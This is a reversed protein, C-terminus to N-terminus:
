VSVGPTTGARTQRTAQERSLAITAAIMVVVAAAVVVAGVGSTRLREDLVTTGLVIAVVPEGITIAPLSASLPGVQFARQQLYVGVAGAALLAYTQWAGAVAGLGHGFLDTVYKTFAVAVGYLGGSAAGLLLARRGADVRPSLGALAAVALVVVVATLPLAWRAWPADINGDTPDGVILFVALAVTLAGALAWSRRTLRCGSFRASLPLAFLLMSVLLPQVVLVSGLALAAVQLLYGGGDGVIGAWWRPSRLLSGILPRDEPVAAAATQQAVSACAFLLAAALACGIAAVPLGSM